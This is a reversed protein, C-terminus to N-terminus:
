INLDQFLGLSDQLWPPEMESLNPRSPDGAEILHLAKWVCTEKGLKGVTDTRSKLAAINLICGLSNPKLTVTKEMSAKFRPAIFHFQHQPLASNNNTASLQPFSPHGRPEQLGMEHLIQTSPFLVRTCCTPHQPLSTAQLPRLSLKLASAVQQRHKSSKWSSMIGGMPVALSSLVLHLHLRPKEQSKVGLVFVLTVTQQLTCKQHVDGAGARQCGVARHHVEVEGLGEVLVMQHAIVRVSLAEDGTAPPQQPQVGGVEGGLEVVVAGPHLASFSSVLGATVQGQAVPPPRRQPATLGQPPKAHPWPTSANCSFIAQPTVRSPQLAHQWTTNCLSMARLHQLAQQMSNNCPPMACREQLAHQMPNNCLPTAHPTHQVPTNYFMNCPSAAGSIAHPQQLACLMLVDCPSKARLVVFHMANGTALPHQVSCHRKCPTARPTACPM